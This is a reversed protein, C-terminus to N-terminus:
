LVMMDKDDKEKDKYKDNVKKLRAQLGIVSESYKGGKEFENTVDEGAHTIIYLYYEASWQEKTYVNKCLHCQRKYSVDALTQLKYKFVFTAIPLHLWRDNDSSIIGNKRGNRIFTDFRKKSDFM